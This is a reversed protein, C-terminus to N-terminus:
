SQAAFVTTELFRNLFKGQPDHRRVLAGFDALMPFSKRLDAPPTTFLKGWHPKAQFPALENEIAPLLHTVARVDQKWTFHFAVCDTEFCPSMWLDDAAISRIESVLLLPAIRERIRDLALLAEVANRRSVFYESQLEEGGSPTFGLRFHPLREHWPGEIGLQENCNEASSGRLPHVNEVAPVAGFFENPLSAAADSRRKIWVQDIQREQWYTFLSVSYAASIIEDFNEALSSLDLGLFVTQGVEFRPEIALELETVVGLAGLSVVAGTLDPSGRDLRVIDGTGSVFELGIVSAALIRNGVGSGHTATACAGAVSIHPLSALNPLAFGAADLAIGLQGYRVGSGISVAMANADIEIGDLHETSILIGSSDAIDNFCHRSGLAKVKENSMVLHQIESVDRPLYLGRGQYSYNGAWNKGPATQEM